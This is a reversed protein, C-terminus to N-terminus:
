AAPDPEPEPSDTAAAEQAALKDRLERNEKELALREFARDNEPPSYDPDVDMACAPCADMQVTITERGAGQVRGSESRKRSVTTATYTQWGDKLESFVTGCKDCMRVSSM